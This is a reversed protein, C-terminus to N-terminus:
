RQTREALYADYAEPNDEFTKSVLQERSFDGKSVGQDIFADVNALVDSNSGLGPTGIEDLFEIAASASDLAKAIVECDEYSLAEAARKLVPGLEDPAIGVNYSKAVETYERDLRMQREAEASDAAAKAVSELYQVQGFAKSIIEDRESDTIAEGLAKSIEEVSFTETAHSKTVESRRPFSKAVPAEEQEVDEDAGEEESYQFGNGEADYVVDGEELASLDVLEGDENFYEDM